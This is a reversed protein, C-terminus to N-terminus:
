VVATSSCQSGNWFEELTFKQLWIGIENEPLPSPLDIEITEVTLGSPNRRVAEFFSDWCEKKAQRNLIGAKTQNHYEIQRKIVGKLNKWADDASAGCEMIDHDLCHGIYTSTVHDRSILCSLSYNRPQTQHEMIEELISVESIEHLM